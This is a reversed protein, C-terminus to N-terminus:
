SPFHENLEKSIEVLSQVQTIKALNLLDSEDLNLIEIIAALQEDSLPHTGAEIEKLAESSLFPTNLVLDEVSLNFSLRRQEIYLGFLKLFQSSNYQSLNDINV